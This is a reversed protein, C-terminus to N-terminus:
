RHQVTYMPVAASTKLIKEGSGARDEKEELTSFMDSCKLPTKTEDRVFFRVDLTEYLKPRQYLKSLKMETESM